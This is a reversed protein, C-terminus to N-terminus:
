NINTWRYHRFNHTASGTLMNVTGFERFKVLLRIINNKTWGKDPFETIFQRASYGKCKYLNKILIKGEKSFPMLTSANAQLAQYVVADFNANNKPTQNLLCFTSKLFAFRYM